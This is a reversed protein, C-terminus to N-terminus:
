IIFIDRSEEGASSTLIGLVLQHALWVCIWAIFNGDM